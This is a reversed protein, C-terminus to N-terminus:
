RMIRRLLPPWVWSYIVYGLFVGAIAGKYAEFPTGDLVTSRFLTVALFWIAIAGGWGWKQMPWLPIMSWHGDVRLQSALNVIGADDPHSLALEAAIAKAERAKGRDILMQVIRLTTGVQNPHERMLMSLRRKQEADPKLIFGCLTHVNLAGEHQPNIRLAEAALREAKEIMYSDLMVQAYSAYLDASEPYDELMALLTQEAAGYDDREHFVQAQVYRASYSSPAQQLVRAALELATDLEDKLWANWAALELLDTSDPFQELAMGLREDAAVHRRRDVLEGIQAVATDHDIPTDDMAM